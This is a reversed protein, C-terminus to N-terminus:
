KRIFKKRHDQKTHFVRMVVVERELPRYVVVYPFRKVRAQRFEGYIGPHRRPNSAIGGLCRQLELLFQGGLGERKAAYWQVAHYVDKRAKARFVLEHGM